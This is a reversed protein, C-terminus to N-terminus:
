LDEAIIKDTMRIRQTMIYDDNAQKAARAVNQIKIRAILPSSSYLKKFLKYEAKSTSFRKLMKAKQGSMVRGKRETLNHSETM